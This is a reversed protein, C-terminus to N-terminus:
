TNLFIIGGFLWAGFWFEQAPLVAARSGIVLHLFNRLFLIAVLGLFSTKIMSLFVQQLAGGESAANMGQRVVLFLILLFSAVQIWRLTGTHVKVRSMRVKDRKGALYVQLALGIGMLVFPLALLHPHNDALLFSFFPFEDIVEIENGILNVDNVVRSARWWWWHRTPLWSPDATPPNVLTKINLWKWFPSAWGGESDQIWFLHRNHLVELFGELNGTILVFIPGFLSAALRPRGDRRALLNYLLSYTGIVSLGFWLANGLNFAVGGPLQTLTTLLSLQIYGFYYYSIAYGSLWPDRPPFVESRQISNLFALEM